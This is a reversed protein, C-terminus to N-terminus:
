CVPLIQFVSHILSQYFVMILPMPFYHKFLSTVRFFLHPCGVLSMPLLLFQMMSFLILYSDDILFTEAVDVIHRHKRQVVGNQLQTHPASKRFYIGNVVLYAHFPTNDPEKVGDSQFYKIKTSFLNEVMAHFTRFRTIADSKQKSPYLWAFLTHPLLLLVHCSHIVLARVLGPLLPLSLIRHNLRLIITTEEM